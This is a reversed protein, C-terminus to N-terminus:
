ASGGTLGPPPSVDAEDFEGLLAPPGQPGTGILLLRDGARVMHITHRPSLATRGVVQVERGATQPRPPFKRLVMSLGGFAALVVVIGVPGLWWGLSNGSLASRPTSGRSPPVLHRGRAPAAIATPPPDDARAGSATLLVALAVLCRGGPGSLPGRLRRETGPAPARKTEALKEPSVRPRVGVQSTAQEQTGTGGISRFRSLRSCTDFPRM